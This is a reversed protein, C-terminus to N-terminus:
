YLFLSFLLLSLNFFGSHDGSLRKSKKVVRKTHASNFTQKKAVGWM